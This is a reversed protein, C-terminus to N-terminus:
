LSERVRPSSNVIERFTKWDAGVLRDFEESQRSSSGFYGSSLKAIEDAVVQRKDEDLVAIGNCEPGILGFANYAGYLLLRFRRKTGKPSVIQDRSCWMYPLVSPLDQTNVTRVTQKIVKTM